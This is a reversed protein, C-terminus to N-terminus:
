VLLMALSKCYKRGGDYLSAWRVLVCANIIMGTSRPASSWLTNCNWESATLRKYQESTKWTDYIIVVDNIRSHLIYEIWTHLDCSFINLFLSWSFLIPDQLTLDRCQNLIYILREQAFFFSKWILTDTVLM